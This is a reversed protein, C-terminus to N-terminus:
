HKQKEKNDWFSQCEKIKKDDFDHGVVLVTQTKCYGKEALTRMGKIKKYQIEQQQVSKAGGGGGGNRNNTNGRNLNMVKVWIGLSVDEGQYDFLSDQYQSIYEAIPRSVLHGASGIPFTPYMGNTKFQSVEKWKGGPAARLDSRIDGAVIPQQQQQQQQQQQLPDNNNNNNNDNSEFTRDIYNQFANLRVFVDDDVKAIYRISKPLYRDVFTYATKLKKPLNSYVEAGDMILIDGYIYQENRLKNENPIIIDQIYKEQEISYLYPDLESDRVVCLPNGGRDNGRYLIPIKCFDGVVFYVLPLAANENEDDDDNNNKNSYTNNNNSSNNLFPASSSPQQQKKKKKKKKKKVATKAWTSRITQRREFSDNRTMVMVVLNNIRSSSAIKNNSSINTNNNNNGTTPTMVNTTKNNNNNNNNIGIDIDNNIDDDVIGITPLPYYPSIPHPMAALLLSNNVQRINNRDQNHNDYEITAPKNMSREYIANNSYYNKNKVTNGDANIGINNNNNYKMPVLLLQRLVFLISLVSFIIFFLRDRSIGGKGTASKSRSSDITGNGTSTTASDIIGNGTSTSTSTSTNSRRNDIRMITISKSKEM